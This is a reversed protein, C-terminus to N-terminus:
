QTHSNYVVQHAFGIPQRTVAVVRGDVRQEAEYYTYLNLSTLTGWVPLTAPADFTADGRLTGLTPVKLPPRDVFRLDLLGTMQPYLRLPANVALTLTRAGEPVVITTERGIPFATGDFGQFSGVLTGVFEEPPYRGEGLLYGGRRDREAIMGDATVPQANGNPGDPDIEGFAFISLVQGPRVERRLMMPEGGETAPRLEMREPEYPLPQGEFALELPVIEGARIPVTYWDPEGEVPRIGLEDANAFTWRQPGPDPDEGGGDGGGNTMGGPSCAVVTAFGVLVSFVLARRLHVPATRRVTEVLLALGLAVTLLVLWGTPTFPPLPPGAPAEGRDPRRGSPVENDMDAQLLITVEDGPAVGPIGEASLFIRQAYQSTEFYNYNIHEANNSANDDRQFDLLTLTVCIFSLDGLNPWGECDNLDVEFDVSETGNVNTAVVDETVACRLSSSTEGTPLTGYPKMALEVTGDNELPGSGAPGDYQFTITFTNEGDNVHHDGSEADLGNIRWPNANTFNVDFCVDDISATALDSAAPFTGTTVANDVANPNVANVSIAADYLDSPWARVDGLQTGTQHGDDIFLLAGVAFYDPGATDLAFNTGTTPLEVELNWIEDELDDGTSSTYDYAVAATVSAAAAPVDDKWFQDFGSGSAGEDYRWYTITGVSVNCMTGTNVLPSGGSGDATSVQVQIAFDGDNWTNSNDADFYFLAHDFESLEDDAGVTVGVYLRDTSPRHALYLQAEPASSTPHFAAPSVGGWETDFSCGGSSAGEAVVGDITPSSTLEKVCLTTQAAVESVSFAILLLAGALAHALPRCSPDSAPHPTM